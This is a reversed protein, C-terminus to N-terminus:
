QAHEKITLTKSDSNEADIVLELDYQGEVTVKIDSNGTGPAVNTSSNAFDVIDNGADFTEGEHCRVKWGQDALLKVNTWKWKYVDGNKEYYLGPETGGMAYLYVNWNWINDSIVNLNDTSVGNGVIELKSTSWDTYTVDATKTLSLAYGNAFDWTLKLTYVGAAIHTNDGDKSVAFNAGGYQIKTKDTGMGINTQVNKEDAIQYNWLANIRVKFEKGPKLTFNTFEWEGAGIALSKQTFVFNSDYGWGTMNGVIEWTKVKLIVVKMTPIDVILFYFGEGNPATFVSGNEKLTGTWAWDKGGTTDATWAGDLGYVKLTQGAQQKLSFGDNSEKVYVYKVMLGESKISPNPYKDIWGDEMLNSQKLDESFIAKGVLYFGDEVITTPQKPEEKKKCSIVLMAVLTLLGLIKLANKM